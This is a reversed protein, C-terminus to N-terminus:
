SHLNNKSKDNPKEFSVYTYTCFQINVIVSCVTGLANINHSLTIVVVFYYWFFFFVNTWHWNQLQNQWFFENRFIPPPPFWWFLIDLTSWFFIMPNLPQTVLQIHTHLIPFFVFCKSLVRISIGFHKRKISYFYYWCCFLCIVFFNGFINENKYVSITKM